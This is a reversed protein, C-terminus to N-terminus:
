IRVGRALLQLRGPGWLPNLGRAQGSGRAQTSPPSCRVCKRGARAPPKIPVRNVRYKINGPCAISRLAKCEIDADKKSTHEAQGLYDEIPTWEDSIRPLCHMVIYKYKRPM